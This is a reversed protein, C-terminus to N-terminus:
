GGGCPDEAGGEPLRLMRAPLSAPVEGRLSARLEISALARDEFYDVRVHHTGAALDVDGGMSQVAHVGWNDVVRKGDVYLRSGDDSILQFTIQLPEDLELCTDFRVSFTDRALKPNPSGREWKYRVDGERTVLLPQGALELNDFYQARWPGERWDPMSWLIGVVLPIAVVVGLVSRRITRRRLRVRREPDFRADGATVVAAALATALRRLIVPDLGADDDNALTRLPVALDGPTAIWIAALDVEGLESADVSTAAIGAARALALYGRRLHVAATWPAVSPDDLLAVAALAQAQAERWASRAATAEDTSM